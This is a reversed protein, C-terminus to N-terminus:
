YIKLINYDDFKKYQIFLIIYEFLIILSSKEFPPFKVVNIKPFKNDNNIPANRILKM